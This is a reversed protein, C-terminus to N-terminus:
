SATCPKLITMYWPAPNRCGGCILGVMWTGTDDIGPFSEAGAKLTTFDLTSGATIDARYYKKAITDLELFKKELQEPTEDFHGVIASTIYGEQFKGGLANPAQADVMGQWSMMLGPMGAPVGTITLNRLSVQCTMQTSANTVTVKDASSGADLHFAQLMRMNRGLETGSQVGFLYTAIDPTYVAGDFYTNIEDPTVPNGNVTFDYLKASTVSSSIPLSPPPSFGLDSTFLEDRNLLDELDSLKLAWLMALATNLSSGDLTHGLFDKSVASWDFTLNSMSKVTVTPLKITSSFAYNNATAATISAGGCAVPQQAVTVPKSTCGTTAAPPDGGSSCASLLCPLSLALALSAPTRM